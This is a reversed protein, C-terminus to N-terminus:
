ERRRPRAEVAWRFAELALDPPITHGGAFTRMTVDHGARILVPAIHESTSEFPLIRDADGHTIFVAPRKAHGTGRPVFGPSFAVVRTFLDGNIRGLALAYSAGDSFGAVIVRASDVAVREFAVGLARDIYEVDPGYTGRIADWTPGRSDPVLIAFGVSDALWGLRRFIGEADGGAGHLLVVLPVPATAGAPVYLAGDRTPALGLRMAMPTAPAPGGVRPRATLRGSRADTDQSLGLSCAMAAPVLCLVARRHWARRLSPSRMM